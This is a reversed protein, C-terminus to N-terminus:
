CTSWICGLGNTSTCKKWADKSIQKNCRWHFNRVHGMHISGSPYPFMSLCFYKEKSHDETVSFSENEKWYEQVQHEIDGPEYPLDKDPM